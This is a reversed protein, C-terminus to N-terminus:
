TSLYDEGGGEQWAKLLQDQSTEGGSCLKKSSPNDQDGARVGAGLRKWVCHREIFPHGTPSHSPICLSTHLPLHFSGQLRHHTRRHTGSRSASHAPKSSIFERASPGALMAKHASSCSVVNMTPQIYLHYISLCISCPQTSPLVSNRRHSQKIFPGDAPATAQRM